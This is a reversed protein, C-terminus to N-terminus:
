GSARMLRHVLDNVAVEVGVCLVASSPANATSASNNADIPM